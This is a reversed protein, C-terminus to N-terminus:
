IYKSLADSLHIVLVDGHSSHAVRMAALSFLYLDSDILLLWSFSVPLVAPAKLFSKVCYHFDWITNSLM